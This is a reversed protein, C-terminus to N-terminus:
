FIKARVDKFSFRASHKTINCYFNVHLHSLNRKLSYRYKLHYVNRECDTECLRAIMAVNFSYRSLILINHLSSITCSRFSSNLNILPSANKGSLEQGFSICSIKQFFGLPSSSLKLNNSNEIPLPHPGVNIELHIMSAWNQASDCCFASFLARCTSETTFSTSALLLMSEIEVDVVM